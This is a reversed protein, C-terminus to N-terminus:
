VRLMVALIALIIIVWMPIFIQLMLRRLDGIERRLERVETELNGLRLNMQELAGEVRAVREELSATERAMGAYAILPM